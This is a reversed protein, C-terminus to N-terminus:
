RDHRIGSSPQYRSFKTSENLSSEHQTIGSSCGNRTCTPPSRETRFKREGDASKILRGSSRVISGIQQAVYPDTDVINVNYALLIDRAGITIGGSKQSTEDWQNSGFDPLRTADSHLETSDNFRAPLGEYEGKRLTSLLTREDSTSAFWVFLCTCQIHLKRRLAIAVEVCDDMTANSIPIFPCMSADWVLINELHM